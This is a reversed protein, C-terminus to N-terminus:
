STRWGKTVLVGDPLRVVIPSLYALPMAINYRTSASFNM